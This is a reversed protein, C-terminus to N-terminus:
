QGAYWQEFYKLQVQFYLYATTCKATYLDFSYNKLTGLFINQNIACGNRTYSPELCFQVGIQQMVQQEICTTIFL